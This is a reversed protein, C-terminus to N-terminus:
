DPTCFAAEWEEATTEPENLAAKIEEWTPPNDEDVPFPCVAYRIAPPEAGRKLRILRRQIDRNM